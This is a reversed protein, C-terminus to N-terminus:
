EWDKYSKNWNIKEGTKALGFMKNLQMTLGFENYAGALHYYNRAYNIRFKNLNIGLGFSFGTSGANDKLALERRILDNYAVTFSVRKGFTLEAGFIFHRFLKDAFTAKKSSSTDAGFLTTQTVDAPNNYAIDWQYLHHITAFLRLPIHAMQKSIGMQLDFPLPENVGPTYTRLTVGMNKAVIGFQWLSATDYYNLGVDAVLAKATYGALSSSAFKLDAGYRWHELYSRSAGITVAYEAASETGYINGVNDTATFSGYNIYQIGLLFSTKSKEHYYGYALNSIGIGGYMSNYNVELQNHLAPRMLAPNQLAFAINDETSAVNIGGLASVEPANSMRLYAFSYQGGVVQAYSPITLFFGLIFLIAKNHRM